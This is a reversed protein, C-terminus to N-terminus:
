HMGISQSTMRQLSDGRFQRVIKQADNQSLVLFHLDVFGFSFQFKATFEIFESVPVVVLVGWLIVRVPLSQVPWLNGFRHSPEILLPSSIKM